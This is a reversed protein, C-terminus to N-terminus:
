SAVWFADAFWKNRDLLITEPTFGCARAIERTNEISFKQSVEMYLIEDKEFHFREGAISVFQDELSILYSRCAGSLPDYNQYHKFQNVKFNGSLERNIRELLNLNFLATIGQPDSYAKLITEPDKKLDFGVLVIDGKNLNKRLESCFEYVEGLEMNGINSGLFLVAKRRSSLKSAKQLMEFYEGELSIVPLDPLKVALKQNLIELINGSIDIPMYSFKKNKSNLYELLYVSKSADGAGLEILDFATHGSLLVEALDKTRNKFIDMECRTLYYEPLGMIQQFLADGKKDYFYKSQLFKPTKTLGNLVDGLFYNLTETKAEFSQINNTDAHLKM